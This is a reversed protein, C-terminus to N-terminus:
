RSWDKATRAALSTLVEAADEMAREVSGAHEVMSRAEDVHAAAAEQRGVQVQGALVVCPAGHESAASAVGAVVKGRLSQFDFSGEGTIVLDAGAVETDFGILRRVLAIGAERRGGLALLAAGLGGAAGAGPLSALDPPCGPLHAVLISAWHELAADLIQVDNDTAGKQPGYVASAGHIGTLPNDVDTAAIIEVGRLAPLGALGECVRLSAGGPPLATGSVGVPGAGLAALMGAGGDNTVSGGLGIVVSRAGSEVAAALLLGLGYTTTVKPDREAKPVLHLGCVQACELYAVGDVLLFSADLEEMRPGRARVPVLEGGLTARIVDVLGPGGDSLPRTVVTDGPATRHWGAAIAAAAEGASLTGGFSDPAVLVRM